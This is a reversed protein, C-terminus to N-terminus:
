PSEAKLGVSIAEFYKDFFLEEEPELSIKLDFEQWLPWFSAGRDDLGITDVFSSRSATTSSSVSSRGSKVKYFGLTGGSVPSDKGIM